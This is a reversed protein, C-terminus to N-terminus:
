TRVSQTPPCVLLAILHEVAVLTVWTTQGGPAHVLLELFLFCCLPLIGSAISRVLSLKERAVLASIASDKKFGDALM